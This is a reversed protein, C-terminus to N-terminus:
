KGALKRQTELLRRGLQLLAEQTEPMLSRFIALFETEYPSSAFMEGQGSRLWAENVKFVM